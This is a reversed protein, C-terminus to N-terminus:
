KSPASPKEKDTIKTEKSVLDYGQRAAEQQLETETLPTRTQQQGILIMQLLLVGIIMGAGLGILFERNKFM